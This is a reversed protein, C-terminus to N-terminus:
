FKQRRLFAPIEFDEDEDEDSEQDFLQNTDNDNNDIEEQEIVHQDQENSFLLPKHEDELTDNGGQLSVDNFNTDSNNEIYLM